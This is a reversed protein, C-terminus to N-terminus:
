FHIYYVTYILFFYFPPELKYCRVESKTPEKTGIELWQIVVADYVTAVLLVTAFISCITSFSLFANRKSDINVTLSARNIPYDILQDIFVVFIIIM